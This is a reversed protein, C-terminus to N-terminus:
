IKCVNHVLLYYGFTEEWEKKLNEMENRLQDESIIVEYSERPYYGGPQEESFRWLVVVYQQSM